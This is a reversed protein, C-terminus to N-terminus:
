RVKAYEYKQAEVAQAKARERERGGTPATPSSHHESSKATPAPAGPSLALGQGRCSEV